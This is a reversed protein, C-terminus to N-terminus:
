SSGRPPLWRARVFELVRRRNTSQSVIRRACCTLFLSLAHVASFRTWSSGSTIWVGFDITRRTSVLLCLGRNLCRVSASLDGHDNATTKLSGFQTRTDRPGAPSTPRALSMTTTTAPRCFLPPSQRVLATTGSMLSATAAALACFQLLGIQSLFLSGFSSMLPGATTTTALKDHGSPPPFEGRM